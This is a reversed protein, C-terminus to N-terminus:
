DTKTLLYQLNSQASGFLLPGEEWFIFNIRIRKKM